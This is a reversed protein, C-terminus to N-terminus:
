GILASKKKERAFNPGCFWNKTIKNKIIKKPIKSEIKAAAQNEIPPAPQTELKHTEKIASIKTNGIVCIEKVIYYVWNM